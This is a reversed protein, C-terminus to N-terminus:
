GAEIFDAIGIKACAEFCFEVGAQSQAAVDAILVAIAPRGFKLPVPTTV